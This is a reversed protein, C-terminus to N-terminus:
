SELDLDQLLDSLAENYAEAHTVQPVHGAGLVISERSLPISAVLQQSGKVISESDQDGYIVLSPSAFSELMQDYRALSLITEGCGWATDEDLPSSHRLAPNMAKEEASMSALAIAGKILPVFADRPPVFCTTSSLVLAAIRGQYHVALHQAIMGGLSHGIVIARDTEDDDLIKLADGSLSELSYSERPGPSSKGHGRLDMNICRFSTSFVSSVGNWLGLSATFGHLFLIPFGDGSARYHLDVSGNRVTPM